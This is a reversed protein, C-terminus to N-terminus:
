NLAQACKTHIRIYAPLTHTKQINVQGFLQWKTVGRRRTWPPQHHLPFCALKWCWDFRSSEPLPENISRWDHTFLRSEARREAEEDTLRVRLASPAHAHMCRRQVELSRARSKIFQYVARARGDKRACLPTTLRGSFRKIYVCIKRLFGSRYPGLWVCVRECCSCGCSRCLMWLVAFTCAHVSDSCVCWLPCAPLIFGIDSKNRGQMDPSRVGCIYAIYYHM